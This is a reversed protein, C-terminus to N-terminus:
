QFMFLTNNLIVVNKLVKTLNRNFNKIESSILIIKSFKEQMFLRKLKEHLNSGKLKDTSHIENLFDKKYKYSSSLNLPNLKRFFKM